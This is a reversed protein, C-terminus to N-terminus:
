DRYSRDQGILIRAGAVTVALAIGLLIGRAGASVPVAMLWDRVIGVLRMGPTSFPLAGTLILLLVFTFLLGSGTVRRRMLRYAGYVLAFLVLGALASEISVQVGELLITTPSPSGTLTGNRELLRLVIVAAASVVLVLSNIRQSFPKGRGFVRGLHVVVLNFIGILVTLAVTIVALQLFVNAISPLAFGNIVDSFQGLGTGTVLGLFTIIGIVIVIASALASGLRAM